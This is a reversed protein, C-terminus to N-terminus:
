ELKDLKSFARTCLSARLFFLVTFVFFVVPLMTASVHSQVASFLMSDSEDIATPLKTAISYKLKKSTVASLLTSERDIIAVVFQPLLDFLHEEQSDM